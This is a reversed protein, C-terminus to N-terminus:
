LSTMHEFQLTDEVVVGDEGRCQEVSQEVVGLGYSDSALAIAGLSLDFDSAGCREGCCQKCGVGTM